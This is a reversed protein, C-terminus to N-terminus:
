DAETRILRADFAAAIRAALPALDLDPRNALLTVCLLEDPATYRSLFASCGSGSGAITMLGPRGPFTWVGSSRHPGEAPLNSPSYLLRRLDPSRILIDGALGVDWVSIDFASALLEPEWVPLKTKPQPGVAPEIPNILNARNLFLRHAPNRSLDEREPLDPRFFTQSLGLPRIQGDRIVDPFPKGAAAEVLLRALLRDTSSPLIRQGPSFRTRARAVHALAAEASKADPPLDPFGSSQRLFDLVPIAGLSPPLKPLYTKAPQDLALNGAEVQQLLAVATYGHLMEGLPFITASGALTKTAPDALGYGTVRTIYPAQVIALTLGPIRHEAMFAAVLEDVSRGDHSVTPDGRAARGDPALLALALLFALPLFTRSIM